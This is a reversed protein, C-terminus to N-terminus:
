AAIVKICSEFFFESLTIYMIARLVGVQSAVYKKMINRRRALMDPYLMSISDLDLWTRLNRTIVKASQQFIAM